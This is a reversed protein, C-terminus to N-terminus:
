DVGCDSQASCSPADDLSKYKVETSEWVSRAESGEYNDTSKLAIIDNLLLAIVFTKM